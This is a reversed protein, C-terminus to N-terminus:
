AGKPIEYIYYVDNDERITQIMKFTKIYDIAPCEQRRQSFVVYKLNFRNIALNTQYIANEPNPDASIVIVRLFDCWYAIPQCIMGEVLFGDEKTISFINELFCSTKWARIKPKSLMFVRNLALFAVVGGWIAFKLWIIPVIPLGKALLYGILPIAVISNRALYRKLFAPYLLAIILLSIWLSSILAGKITFFLMIPLLFEIPSYLGWAGGVKIPWAWGLEKKGYYAYNWNFYLPSFLQKLTFPYVKEIMGEIGSPRYVERAYVRTKTIFWSSYIAIFSLFTVPNLGLLAWAFIGRLGAWTCTLGLLGWAAGAGLWNHSLMLLITLNGLLCVLQYRFVRNSYYILTYNFTLFALAITKQYSNLGLTSYLSSSVFYLAISCVFSVM